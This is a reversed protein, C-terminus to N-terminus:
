RDEEDRALEGTIGETVNIVHDGIRELLNYMDAYVIGNLVHYSNNEISKLHKKRLQDRKKNIHKEVNFAEELTVKKHDAALNSNMIELSKDVLQFMEMLNGIQKESFWVDSENKREISLSIQFFLDAIRELDNAISIMGRLRLSSEDSLNSTSLKSLYEAVEIEMRDTIGEYKKVRKVIKNRNKFKKDKILSQVFGSMRST